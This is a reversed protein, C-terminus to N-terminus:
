AILICEAPKASKMSKRVTPHINFEYYLLQITTNPVFVKRLPAAINNSSYLVELNMDYFQLNPNKKSPLAESVYLMSIGDPLPFRKGLDTDVTKKGWTEVAFMARLSLSRYSSIFGGQKISTLNLFLQEQATLKRDLM